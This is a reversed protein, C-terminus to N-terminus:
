EKDNLCDIYSQPDPYKFQQQVAEQQKLLVLYNTIKSYYNDLTEQYESTSASDPDKTARVLFGVLRAQSKIREEDATNLDTRENLARVTAALYAQTCQQSRLTAQQASVLQRQTDSLREHTQQTRVMSFVVVALLMTWAVIDRVRESVRPM